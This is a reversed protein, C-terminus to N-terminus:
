GMFFPLLAQSCANYDAIELQNVTSAPLQPESLMAIYTCVSDPLEDYGIPKGGADTVARLPFGGRRMDGATPKRFTVQTVDKGFAQYPRSFVVVGPAPAPPAVPHGTAAALAAPSTAAPAAAAPPAQYPAQPPAALVADPQGYGAPAPRMTPQPSRAPPPAYQDNYVYGDNGLRRVDQEPNSM